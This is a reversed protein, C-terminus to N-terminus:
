SRAAARAATLLDRLLRTERAVDTLGLGAPWAPAEDASTLEGDRDGLPLSLQRAPPQATDGRTLADIRREVSEALSWASSLARKHLVSAALWARAREARLAATYSALLAHMRAEAPTPRVHLAHTRRSAGARVDVRTRRFVILSDDDLAGLGALSVFSSRDESHPTATLLLVYSARAALASVAAHRDSDGAAGHAEDVVLVDWPTAAAAPFVEPRKVYDISAIAVREISWPNVGIPMDAARRRLGAADALHAAIGFRTSLEHAWQERLGSPTLVLVRDASGRAILEAIAIGAQITKGLGVEDALLIRCGRGHLIALAPELQHPM